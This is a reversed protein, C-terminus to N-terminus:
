FPSCPLPALFHYPCALSSRTHWCHHDHLPVVTRAPRAFWAKEKEVPPRLEYGVFDRVEQYGPGYDVWLYEKPRIWRRSLVLLMTVLPNDAGLIDIDVPTFQVNPWHGPPPENILGASRRGRTAYLLRGRVEAAYEGRPRGDSLRLPLSNHYDRTRLGSHAPYIAIVTGPPLVEEGSYQLGLGNHEQQVRCPVALGDQLLLARQDTDEM